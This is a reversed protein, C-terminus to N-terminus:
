ETGDVEKKHNTNSHTDASIPEVDELLFKWDAEKLTGASLKTIFVSNDEKILRKEALKSSIIEALRENNNM